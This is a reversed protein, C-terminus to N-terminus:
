GHGYKSHADQGTAKRYAGFGTYTHGLWAFEAKAAGVGVARFRNDDSRNGIPHGDTDAHPVTGYVVHARNTATITNHVFTDRWSHYQILLEPSGDNLQNNGRLVNYAFLNDHSTGTKVGGCNPKDNCYGGTAIGTFLSGTIHNHTVTVFDATGRGNEAAVEIGIDSTRVRNHRVHIRTGGDIYIGDACNCWGHDWYSPNGRSQIHTIRNNAIIGNRARDAQTYRYKGTLTPEYGIADIGINNNDFIHNGTIAWHNVNGNVVTSESAGTRLHDVTNGHIVLHRISAHPDDGYAAIGHANINFSGLTGNYNGLRYVHNDLIRIHNDHGHMYIGIPVIGKRTTHYGTVALGSISINNSNFIEIMASTGSPPTLSTGDLVAAEHHYPRIAIGHVGALRVRQAYHGARLEITGGHPLQSVALQITKLPAAVTGPNSDNGDPAVVLVASSAARGANLQAPRAAAGYATAGTVALALTTLTALATATRM